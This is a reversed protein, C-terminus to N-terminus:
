GVSPLSDGLCICGDFRGNSYAKLEGCWWKGKLKYFFVSGSTAAFLEEVNALINEHYEPVNERNVIILNLANNTTYLIYAGGSKREVIVADNVNQALTIPTENIYVLEGGDNVAASVLRDALGDLAYCYKSDFCKYGFLRNTSIQGNSSVMNRMLKEDELSYLLCGDGFATSGIINIPNYLRELKNGCVSVVAGNDGSSFDMKLTNIGEDLYVNLACKITDFEGAFIGNININFKTAADALIEVAMNVMGKGSYFSMTRSNNVAGHADFSYSIENKIENKRDAIQTAALYTEKTWNM